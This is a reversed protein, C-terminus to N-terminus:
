DVYPLWTTKEPTKQHFNGGMPCLARTVPVPVENAASHNHNKNSDILDTQDAFSIVLRNLVPSYFLIHHHESASLSPTSYRVSSIM